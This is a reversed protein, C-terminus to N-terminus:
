FPHINATNKDGFPHKKRFFENKALTPVPHKEVWLFVLFHRLWPCFSCMQIHKVTDRKDGVPAFLPCFSIPIKRM